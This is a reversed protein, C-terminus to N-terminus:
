RCSNNILNLDIRLLFAEYNENERFWMQNKQNYLWDYISEGFTSTVQNTDGEGGGELHTFWAKIADDTAAFGTGTVLEGVQLQPVNDLVIGVVGTVKEKGVFCLDDLYDLEYADHRETSWNEPILNSALVSVGAYFSGISALNEKDEINAPDSFVQPTSSKPKNPKNSSLPELFADDPSVSDLAATPTQQPNPIPTPTSQVQVPPNVEPVPPPKAVSPEIPPSETKIPLDPEAPLDSAPESPLVSVQISDLTLEEVEEPVEAKRPIPVFLGLGHLGLSTLLLPSLWRM